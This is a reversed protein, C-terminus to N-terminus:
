QSTFQYNTEQAPILSLLQPNTSQLIRFVQVRSIPSLSLGLASIFQQIRPFANDLITLKGKEANRNGEPM